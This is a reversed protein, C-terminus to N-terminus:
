ENASSLYFSIDSINNLKEIEKSTNDRMALELYFSQIGNQYTKPTLIKRTFERINSKGKGIWKRDDETLDFNITDTSILTEKFSHHLPFFINQYKYSTNHRISINSIRVQTPDKTTIDFKVIQQSNWNSDLFSYYHTKEGKCSFLLLLFIIPYIFINNKM